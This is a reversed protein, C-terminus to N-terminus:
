VAAVSCAWADFAAMEADLSKQVSRRLLPALVATLGGSVEVTLTLVTRDGIAEEVEHRGVYTSGRASGTWAYAKRSPTDD